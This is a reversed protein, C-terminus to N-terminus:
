ANGFALSVRKRFHEFGGAYYCHTVDQFENSSKFESIVVVGVNKVKERLTKVQNSFAKCSEESAMLLDGKEVDEAKLKKVQSKLDDREARLGTITMGHTVNRALTDAM